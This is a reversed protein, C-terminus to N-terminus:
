KTKGKATMLITKPVDGRRTADELESYRREWFKILNKLDSVEQQLREVQTARSAFIDLIAAEALAKAEEREQENM